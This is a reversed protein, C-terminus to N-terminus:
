ALARLTEIAADIKTRREELDAIAAAYVGNGTPKRPASMPAKAKARSNSPPTASSRNVSRAKTSPVTADNSPAPKKEKRDPLPDPADPLTLIISLRQKGPWIKIKGESQLIEAERAINESSIRDYQMFKSKGVVKERQVRALIKEKDTRVVPTEKEPPTPEASRNNVQAPPVAIREPETTGELRKRRM